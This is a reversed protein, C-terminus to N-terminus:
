EAKPDVELVKHNTTRHKSAWEDRKEKDEFEMPLIPQCQTCIALYKGAPALDSNIVM